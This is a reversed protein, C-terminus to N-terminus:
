DAIFSGNVLKGHTSVGDKHKTIDNSMGTDYFVGIFYIGSLLSIRGDGYWEGLFWSGEYITGDDYVMKGQGHPLGRANTEGEYTGDLSAVRKVKFAFDSDIKESADNSTDCPADFDGECECLPEDPAIDETSECECPAGNECECPTDACNTYVPKTRNKPLYYKTVPIDARPTFTGDQMSGYTIAGNECRTVNNSVGIGLWYASLIIDGDFLVGRGHWENRKWEGKYVCGSAYYKIGHGHAMGDKFEGEYISGDADTLRGAGNPCFAKFGGEYVSGDTLHCVGNEIDGKYFAGEIRRGDCLTLAGFGEFLGDVFEGEYWSGNAFTYKGHGHAEGGETDGEYSDGDPLRIPHSSSKEDGDENRASEDLVDDAGIHSSESSAKSKSSECLEVLVDNDWIGCVVKGDPYTIEGYGHYLGDFYGGEHIIGEEDVTKGHGCPSGNVWEGEYYGGDTFIAKGHGEPLNNENVEGIYTFDSERIIRENEGLELTDEIEDEPSDEIPATRQSQRSNPDPNFLNEEPNYCGHDFVGLYVNGDADSLRGLGHYYGCSFSGEYSIGTTLTLKGMGDFRGQVFGGEYVEGSAFTLRGMGDILGNLFNGEYSSGAELVLGELAEFGDAVFTAEFARPNLIALVGYGNFQGDIFSGEYIFEGAKTFIGRGSPLGNENVEGEYIGNNFELKM